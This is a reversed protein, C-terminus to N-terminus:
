LSKKNHIVQDRLFSGLERKKQQEMEKQSEVIRNNYQQSYHMNRRQFEIEEQAKIKNKARNEEM